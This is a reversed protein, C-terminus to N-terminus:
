GRCWHLHVAVLSAGSFDRYWWYPWIIPLISLCGALWFHFHSSSWLGRRAWSRHSRNQENVSFLIIGRCMLCILSLSSLLNPFSFTTQARVTESVWGFLINGIFGGSHSFSFLTSISTILNEREFHARRQNLSWFDCKGAHIRKCLVKEILFVWWHVYDFSDLFCRHQKYSWQQTTIRRIKFNSNGCEALRICHSLSSFTIWNFRIKSKDISNWNLEFKIWTSKLIPSLLQIYVFDGANRSNWNVVSFDTLWRSCTWASRQLINSSFVRRECM